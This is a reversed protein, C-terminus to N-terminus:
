KDKRSVKSHDTQALIQKILENRDIVVGTGLETPQNVPDKAQQAALKRDLEAKQLQLQITKLKKNAKATRATLAHGFFSSASNFIEASFRSDVQMGLDMLNEFAGKASEALEDLEKDTGDLDKVESLAQEIKELNTLAQEHTQIAQEPTIAETLPTTDESTDDDDNLGFLEELKKTM